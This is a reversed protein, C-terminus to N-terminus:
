HMLPDLCRRAVTPQFRWVSYGCWASARCAGIPAQGKASSTVPCICYIAVNDDTGRVSSGRFTMRRRLSSTVLENSRVNSATIMMGESMPVTIVGGVSVQMDYSGRFGAM